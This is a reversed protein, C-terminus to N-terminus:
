GLSSDTGAFFTKDWVRFINLVSAKKQQLGQLLYQLHCDFEEHWYIGTELGCEQSFDDQSLGWHAQENTHDHIAFFLAHFIHICVLM